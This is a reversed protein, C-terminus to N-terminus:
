KLSEKTQSDYMHYEHIMNSGMWKATCYLVHTHIGTVNNLNIHSLLKRTLLIRVASSGTSILNFSCLAVM